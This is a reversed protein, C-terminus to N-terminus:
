FNLPPPDMPTTRPSPASPTSSPNLRNQRKNYLRTPYSGMSLPNPLCDRKAKNTDPPTYLAADSTSSGFRVVFVAINPPGRDTTPGAAARDPRRRRPLGRARRARM